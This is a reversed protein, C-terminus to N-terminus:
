WNSHIENEMQIKYPKVFASYVKAVANAVSTGKGIVERLDEDACAEVVVDWGKDYNGVAYAKVADLTSVGLNIVDQVTTAM